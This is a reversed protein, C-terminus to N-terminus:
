LHVFLMSGLLSVFSALLLVDCRTAHVTVPTAHVGNFARAEAACVIEESYRLSNVLITVLMRKLARVRNRRFGGRLRMALWVSSCISQILPVLNMAIGLLFGIETVGLRAFLASLSGISASRTFANTALIITTARLAMGAGMTLGDRSLSVGAVIIKEEGGVALTTIVTISVLFFWFRRKKLSHLAEPSMLAVWMFVYLLAFAAELGRLLMGAAISSVLFFLAGYISWEGLGASDRMRTTLLAM